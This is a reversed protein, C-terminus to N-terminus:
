IFGWACNASDCLLHCSPLKRRERESMEISRRLKDEDNCALGQNKRKIYVSYEMFIGLICFTCKRCLRVMRIRSSKSADHRWSFRKDGHIFVARPYRTIGVCLLKMKRIMEFSRARVKVLIEYRESEAQNLHDLSISAEYFKYRKIGFILIIYAFHIFIVERKKRKQPTRLATAQFQCGRSIHANRTSNIKM